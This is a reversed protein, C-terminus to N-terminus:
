MKEHAIYDNVQEKLLSFPLEGNELIAKHFAMETFRLGLKEQALQRLELIEVCGMYYSQFCAPDGVLQNYISSVDELALYQQIYEQTEELTWGEYHIGIDCIAILCNQFLSYNQELAILDTDLDTLYNLALMEVYTAFGESYGPISVKQRFPDDLNQLVYNTQYLHGPLGEHAITSFTSLSDTELNSNNPNVRIKQTQTSDLPPVVYYAGVGDVALEPDIYSITYDVLDIYPFNQSSFRELDKLIASLGEYSTSKEGSLYNRYTEPDKAAITTIELISSDLYRQLLKKSESVSRDSGCRERFLLEYYEKGGEWYCLGMQNNQSGMLNQITDRIEAYAPLVCDLFIQRAQTKYEEKQAANLLETSDLNHCVAALLASDEGSDLIKQCYAITEKAATDPMFYGKEAQLITYDLMSSIYRPIDQMLLLYDDIDQQKYFTFEMLLSAVDNQLGQMPSFASSMYAFDGEMSDIALDLLYQYLQYTEQQEPTLLDYDFSELEEKLKQNSERSEKLYAEDIAAGLSVEVASPDIDYVEPKLLTYHLSLYDEEMTSIFDKLIFADFAQQMELAPDVSPEEFPLEPMTDVSGSERKQCGAASVCLLVALLLACLRTWPKM